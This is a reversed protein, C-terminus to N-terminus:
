GGEVSEEPHVEGVEEERDLENSANTGGPEVEGNKEVEKGKLSSETKLVGLGLWRWGWGEVTTLVDLRPLFRTAGAENV